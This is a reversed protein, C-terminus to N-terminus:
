RSETQTDTFGGKSKLSKALECWANLFFEYVRSPGANLLRFRYKRSKVNLYPQIKGNVTFKDGLIGDLNFHDFFLEGTTPDFVKDGFVMPIDYDGSPLRLGTREDETDLNIDDSYLTYLGV